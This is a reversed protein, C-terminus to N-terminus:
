QLGACLWFAWFARFAWFAQFRFARTEPEPKARFAQSGLGARFFEVVHRHVPIALFVPGLNRSGEVYRGIVCGLAWNQQGSVNM